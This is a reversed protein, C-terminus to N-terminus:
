SGDAGMRAPPNAQTSAAMQYGMAGVRGYWSRLGAGPQDQYSGVTDPLETNTATAAM